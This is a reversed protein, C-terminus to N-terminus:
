PCFRCTYKFLCNLYWQVALKRDLMDRYIIEVFKPEDGTYPPFQSKSGGGGAEGGGGGGGDRAGASAGGGAV